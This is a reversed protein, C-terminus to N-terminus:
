KKRRAKKRAKREQKRKAKKKIRQSVHSLKTPRMSAVASELMEGALQDMMGGGGQMKVASRLKRAMALQKMGPIKALLGAQSGIDGIMKKMWNFRQLLDKVDAEGRGSGKAVRAVRAPQKDFLSPDIREKKTMSHIISEIKFVERDDVQVGEPLGDPFFPMKEVVDQLSGMKKLVKIQELFDILSFQGKLLRMADEEAKKM